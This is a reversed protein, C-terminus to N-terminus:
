KKNGDVIESNTTDVIWWTEGVEEVPKNVKLKRFSPLDNCSSVYFSSGEKTFCFDYRLRQKTEVPYTRRSGNFMDFVEGTFVRPLTKKKTKKSLKNPKIVDTTLTKM